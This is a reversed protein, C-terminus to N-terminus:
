RSPRFREFLGSHIAEAPVDRTKLISVPDQMAKRLKPLSIVHETTMLNREVAFAAVDSGRIWVTAGDQQSLDAIVSALESLQTTPRSCEPETQLIDGMAVNICLGRVSRWQARATRLSQDLQSWGSKGKSSQERIKIEVFIDPNSATGAVYDLEKYLSIARGKRDIGPAVLIREDVSDPIVTDLLGQVVKEWRLLEAHYDQAFPDRRRGSENKEMLARCFARYGSDSTSRLAIKGQTQDPM